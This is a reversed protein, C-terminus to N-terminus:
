KLSASQHEGESSQGACRSSCQKIPKTLSQLSNGLPPSTTSQKSQGSKIPKDRSRSLVPLPTKRCLKGNILRDCM